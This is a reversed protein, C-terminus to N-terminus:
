FPVKKWKRSYYPKFNETELSLFLFYILRSNIICQNMRFLKKLMWFIDILRAKRKAGWTWCKRGANKREESKNLWFLSINKSGISHLSLNINLLLISLWFNYFERPLVYSTIPLLFYFCGWLGFLLYREDNVLPLLIYFFGILQLLFCCSIPCLVRLGFSNIKIKSILIIM